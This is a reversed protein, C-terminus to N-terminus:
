CAVSKRRLDHYRADELPSPSAMKPADPSIDLSLGITIVSPLLFTYEKPLSAIKTTRM